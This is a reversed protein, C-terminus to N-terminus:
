EFRYEKRGVKTRLVLLREKISELGTLMILDSMAKIAVDTGMRRAAWLDAAVEKDEDKLDKRTNEHGLEHWIIWNRIHVPKKFFDIRVFLISRTKPCSCGSICSASSKWARKAFRKLREPRIVARVNYPIIM